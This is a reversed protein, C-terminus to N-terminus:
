SSFYESINSSLKKAVNNKSMKGWKKTKNKSIFTIQNEDDGFVKGSSVDNALIWDCGKPLLKTTANNLLTATEAAFGAVLTPRDSNRNSFRTLIAPNELM